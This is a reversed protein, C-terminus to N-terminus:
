AGLFSLLHLFVKPFVELIPGIKKNAARRPRRDVAAATGRRSLAISRLWACFLLEAWQGVSSM